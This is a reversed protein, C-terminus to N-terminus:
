VIAQWTVCVDNLSKVVRARRAVCRPSTPWETVGFQPEPPRPGQRMRPRPVSAPRQERRNRAVWMWGIHGDKLISRRLLNNRYLPLTAAVITM